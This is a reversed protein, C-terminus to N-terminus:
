GDTDGFATIGLISDIMAERAQTFEYSADNFTDEADVLENRL